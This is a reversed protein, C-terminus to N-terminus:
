EPVPNKKNQHIARYKKIKAFHLLADILDAPNNVSYNADEVEKAEAIYQGGGLPKLSITITGFYDTIERLDEWAKDQLISTKVVDYIRDSM